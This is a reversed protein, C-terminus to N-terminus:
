VRMRNSRSTAIPPEHAVFGGGQERRQGAPCERKTSTIARTPAAIISNGPSPSASGGAITRTPRASPTVASSSGPMAGVIGATGSAPRCAPKMIPASTM